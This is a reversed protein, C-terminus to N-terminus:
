PLHIKMHIAMAGRNPTQLGCKGCVFMVPKEDLTHTQIHEALDEQCITRYECKCCAYPLEHTHIRMHSAMAGKTSTKLGCVECKFSIEGRHGRLHQNFDGM